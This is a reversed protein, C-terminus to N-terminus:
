LDYVDKPDNEFERVLNEMGKKAVIERCRLRRLTKDSAQKESALKRKRKIAEFEGPELRDYIDDYFRPTKFKRGGVTIFDKPFVDSAFRDFWRKGIGPRRSMTIYEPVLRFVEGTKEDVKSYHADARLGNVKKTIYRAVYAASEYTVEGITSFGYPWIRELAKSRYLEVGKRTSWLKKDPFDFNFLCAHHHPRCLQSGYEGCHFFRIPSSLSEGDEVVEHGEFKKRLRKMFKQFDSKVLSGHEELCEPAFTLTIFCNEEFLSAEHVCRLAWQKARDIRCGICQSCPLDIKEFTGDSIASRDFTVVSKGSETKKLLSRYARLPHFCPMNMRSFVFLFPPDTSFIAGTGPFIFGSM